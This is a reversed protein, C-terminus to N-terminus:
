RPPKRADGPPRSAVIVRLVGGPPVPTDLADPQDGHVVVTRRRHPLPGQGAAVRLWTDGHCPEGAACYCALDRGALDRRAAAILEPQAALWAEFCAVAHAQAARRTGHGAVTAGDLCVEWRGAASSTVRYPNAWRRSQRTVDVAGAPKRYGRRRKLTVRRPAGTM